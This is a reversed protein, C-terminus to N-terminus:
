ICILRLKKLNSIILKNETLKISLFKVHNFMMKNYNNKISAILINRISGIRTMMIMTM